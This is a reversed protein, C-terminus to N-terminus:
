PIYVELTEYENIKSALSKNRDEGVRVIHIIDTKDLFDVCLNDLDTNDPVEANVRVILEVTM